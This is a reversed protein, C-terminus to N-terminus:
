GVEPRGSAKLEEIKATFERWNLPLAGNSIALKRKSISVDYHPWSAQSQFWEQKMGIKEAMTHLESLTDAIMHSMLMRGFRIRADDVYVAM